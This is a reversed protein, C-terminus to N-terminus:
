WKMESRVLTMKTNAAARRGRNHPEIPAPPSGIRSRGIIHLVVM